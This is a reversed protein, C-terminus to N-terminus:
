RRQEVAEHPMWLLKTEFMFNGRFYWAMARWSKPFLLHVKELATVLNEWRIWHKLFSHALTTPMAAPRKVLTTSNKFSAETRGGMGSLQLQNHPAEQEGAMEWSDAVM